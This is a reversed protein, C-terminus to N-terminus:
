APPQSMIGPADWREKYCCRLCVHGHLGERERERPGEAAIVAATAMCQGVCVRNAERMVQGELFRYRPQPPQATLRSPNRCTPITVSSAMPQRTKKPLERGGGARENRRQEMRVEGRLAHNPWDLFSSLVVTSQVTDQRYIKERFIESGRSAILPTAEPACHLDAVTDLNRFGNARADPLDSIPHSLITFQRPPPPSNATFNALGILKRTSEVTTHVSMDIDVACQNDATVFSPLLQVGNKLLRRVSHSGIALTDQNRNALGVMRIETQWDSWGSKPKGTQSDQNRNALGVIRTETQWLKWAFALTSRCPDYNFHNRAMVFITSRKDADEKWLPQWQASSCRTVSIDDNPFSHIFLQPQSFPTSSPSISLQFSLHTSARSEKSAHRKGGTNGLNIRRKIISLRTYGKGVWLERCPTFLNPRNILLDQSGVRTFNPPYPICPRPSRSIGLFVRRGSADDPVIGVLSFRPISGAPLRVCNAKTPPSYDLRYVATTEEKYAPLGIRRLLDKKYVSHPRLFHVGLDTRDSVTARLEHWLRCSRYISTSCAAARTGKDSDALRLPASQRVSALMRSWQGGSEDLPYTPASLSALQRGVCNERGESGAAYVPSLTLTGTCSTSPYFQTPSNPRSKVALDQSGILNFRPSYPAVGSHLPPTFPLDGLFCASWRCSEWMRFEQTIRSPISGPEGSLWRPGLVLYLKGPTCSIQVWAFSIHISSNSTKRYNRQDVWVVSYHFSKSTSKVALDQSGVLTFRPSSPATGSHLPARPPFRSIESFVRRGAAYSQWMRFGPLLGAPIRVKNSSAPIRATHGSGWRPGREVSYTEVHATVTTHNNGRPEIFPGQTQSTLAYQLTYVPASQSLQRSGLPNGPASQRVAGWRTVPARRPLLRLKVGRYDGNSQSYGQCRKSGFILCLLLTVTLQTHCFFIIFLLDPNAPSQLFLKVALYQHGIHAFRRSHPAAGSHLSPSAPSGRPPGGFWRCRGARNGSAFIRSHGTPSQVRNAETPPSCALREAVAAGLIYVVYSPNAHELTKKKLTFDREEQINNSMMEWRMVLTSLLVSIDHHRSIRVGAVCALLIAASALLITSRGEGILELIGVVAASLCSVLFTTRSFPEPEQEFNGCGALWKAMESNKNKDDGSTGKQWKHVVEGCTCVLYLPTSLNPRSKVDLDQSGILTFHTSYTHLLEPICPLSVGSFVRRDAADDQTSIINLRSLNTVFRSNKHSLEAYPFKGRSRGIDARIWPATRAGTGPNLNELVLMSLEETLESVDTLAPSLPWSHPANDRQHSKRSEALSQKCSASSDRPRLVEAPSRFLQFYSGKQMSFKGMGQEVYPINRRKAVEQTPSAPLRPETLCPFVGVTM